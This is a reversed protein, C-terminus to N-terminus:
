LSSAAPRVAVAVHNGADQTYQALAQEEVDSFDLLTGLKRTGAAVTAGVALSEDPRLRSVSVVTTPAAAPQIDIRVGRSAGDVIVDTIGIVTGDVPAYVDTGPAAGVNLVATAPGAGGGLQYWVLREDPAGFIREALRGLLGENGRRGVPELALSGDDAAHYGLATVRSQAVPLQLRLEGRAAVIQAEPPGAPALDTGAPLSSAVRTAAPSGFATLALTFVAVVSVLALGAFRHARRAIKRRRM